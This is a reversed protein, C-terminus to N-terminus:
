QQVKVFILTDLVKYNHAIAVLLYLYPFGVDAHAQSYTWELVRADTLNGRYGLWM